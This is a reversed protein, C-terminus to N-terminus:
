LYAEWSSQQIVSVHINTILSAIQAISIKLGMTIKSLHLLAQTATSTVM